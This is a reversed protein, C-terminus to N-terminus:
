GKVSDRMKQKIACFRDYFDFARRIDVELSAYKRLDLKWVRKRLKWGEAPLM